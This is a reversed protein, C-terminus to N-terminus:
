YTNSWGVFLHLNKHCSNSLFNVIREHYINKCYRALHEIRKFKAKTNFVDRSQKLISVKVQGRYQKPLDVYLRSDGDWWIVPGDHLYV